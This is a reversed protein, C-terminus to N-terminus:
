KTSSLNCNQPFHLSSDTWLGSVVSTFFWHLIRGHNLLALPVSNFTRPSFLRKGSQYEIMSARCSYFIPNQQFALIQCIWARWSSLVHCLTDHYYSLFSRGGSHIVLFLFITRRDLGWTWCRSVDWPTAITLKLTIEGPDVDWYIPPHWFCSNAIIATEGEIRYISPIFWGCRGFIRGFLLSRGSNFNAFIRDVDM